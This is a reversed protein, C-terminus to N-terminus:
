KQREAVKKKCNRNVEDMDLVANVSHIIGINNLKKLPKRFLRLIPIMWKISPRYVIHLNCYARRFGFYNELYDQFSTEHNLSRQGDCIYSGSEIQDAYYGIATYVLAANVQLREYEPVGKLARLDIYKGYSQMHCYGCLKDTPNGADDKLFAGFFDGKFNRCLGEWFEKTYNTPRYKDPYGKFAEMLVDYLDDVYDIPRIVRVDFNKLGKTIKYRRNSKLSQIDFVKDTIVYWWDTEYGCDFDTVWCAFLPKGGGGSTEM